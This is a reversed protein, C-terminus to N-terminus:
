GTKSDVSLTYLLRIFAQTSLDLISRYKCVQDGWSTHCVCVPTYFMADSRNTLHSIVLVHICLMQRHQSPVLM